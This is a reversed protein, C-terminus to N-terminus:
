KSVEDPALAVITLAHIEKPIHRNLAAYVARHRAVLNLGKFEPAVIELKFHGGGSAAGAHGAHLHSEDDIVLSQVQFAKRLDQDFAEIRQQNVNM